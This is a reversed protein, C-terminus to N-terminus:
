SEGRIILYCQTKLNDLDSALLSEPRIARLSDPNSHDGHISATDCNVKRDNHAKRTERQRPILPTSMTPHCRESIRGVERWRLIHFSMKEIVVCGWLGPLSLITDLNNYNEVGYGVNQPWFEKSVCSWEKDPMRWILIMLALVGEM